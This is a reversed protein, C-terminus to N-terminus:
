TDQNTPEIGETIKREVKQRILMVWKNVLVM